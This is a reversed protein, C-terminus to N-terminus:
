GASSLVTIRGEGYPYAYEEGVVGELTDVIYEILLQYDTKVCDLLLPAGDFMSYGDGNELLMYNHSALTYTRNPDIEEGGVLVNKVRREGEIRAFLGNEDEVCPSDMYSHIEYSLGSVQLFGGFENPVSRSGWELADLIMQGSAEIMCLSNGFPFVSLIDNLTIDGAGISSRVGGGNVLAIDAGAQERFADASLDGLNTEMRRVIRIPKGAADTADPDYITLEAATEAVIEKKKENLEDTAEAVAASMENEIGLLNPASEERDWSYLGTSVAGDPGISCWGICELKTGCASRLVNKGEANKMVVQDTDHSHGDLLVDIGTTHSIVDAYTWPSCSESNGLHAMVVVRDAGEARAADVATQVAGYVGEGTQDQMFGYIFEGKEDRFCSPAASTMTEPTTVGVFARKQGGLERIVYPEFVTEGNHVFNCSIYPFEANDALYLLRDTGFDFEHNGPIAVGYGMKNMLGIMSEGKTMVGLYDGGTSDGDDVLIVDYGQATLASRVEQVGAYGFGRDVGCHVDSTYLIMIGRSEGEPTLFSQWRGLVISLQADTATAKPEIGSGTGIIIRNMVAWQVAEDAWSSVEDADVFGLPFMWEGQPAQGLIQANRYLMTVMQERTVPDDPGFKGNGYGKVIGSDAAWLVARALEGEAPVDDFGEQKEGADAAGSLAFLGTVFEGRTLIDNEDAAPAGSLNHKLAAVTEETLGCEKLYAAACGSLDANELDDTGFARSLSKVIGSNLVADYRAEGPEVGYYNRFSLMYDDTVEQWSAGMLCELLAAVFGARDKGENCHIAYVGPHEAFFSIGEALKEKFEAATFDVGMNLAVFSTTSYYSRDFGEYARATPEDDALNMVVTVGAARLEDDAYSSRSRNPNVPSSSRYLVGKGMGATEVARFNAFEADSLGPYDSREDTYSLQHLLYEDRYGGAEKLSVTFGVPGSVGEAWNWEFSKDEHTTKVALGYASAFDGMNIALCVNTDSSRAFLASEGSDVDSYSSCLPLEMSHDTFEVTVVDGYEYGAALLEDKTLSLVVNGYKQINECEATATLEPCERAWVTLSLLLSLVPLLMLSRSHKKM